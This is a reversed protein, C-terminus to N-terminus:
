FYNLTGVKMSGSFIAFFGIGKIKLQATHEKGVGLETSGVFELLQRHGCVV